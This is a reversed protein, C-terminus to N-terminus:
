VKDAPVGDDGTISLTYSGAPTTTAVTLTGTAIPNQMTWDGHDVFSIGDVPLSGNPTCGSTCSVTLTPKATFGTARITVSGGTGAVFSAGTPSITGVAFALPAFAFTIVFVVFGIAIRLGRKGMGRGRGLLLGLCELIGWM